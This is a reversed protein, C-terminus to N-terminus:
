QAKTNSTSSSGKKSSPTQVQLPSVLKIGPAASAKQTPGCLSQHHFLSVLMRTPGTSVHQLNELNVVKKHTLM